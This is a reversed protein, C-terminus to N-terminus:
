GKLTKSVSVKEDLFQLEINKDMGIGFVMNKKQGAIKSAERQKGKDINQTFITPM